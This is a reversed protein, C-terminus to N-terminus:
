NPVAWQGEYRLHVHTGVLVSEIRAAPAFLTALWAFRVDRDYGVAREEIPCSFYGITYVALPIM